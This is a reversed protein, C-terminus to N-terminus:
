VALLLLYLNGSHIEVDLSRDPVVQNFYNQQKLYSFLLSMILIFRRNPYFDASGSSRPGGLIGMDTHIIDVFLADDRNLETYKNTGYYM